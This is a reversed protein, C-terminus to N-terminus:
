CDLAESHQLQTSCTRRNQRACMLYAYQMNKYAFLSHTSVRRLVPPHCHRVNKTREELTEGGRVGTSDLIKKSGESVHVVYESSQRLKQEAKEMCERGSVGVDPCLM